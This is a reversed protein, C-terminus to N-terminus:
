SSPATRRGLSPPAPELPTPVTSLQFIRAPNASRARPSCITAWPPWPRCRPRGRRDGARRQRLRDARPWLAELCLGSRARATRPRTSTSGAPRPCTRRGSRARLRELQIPAGGALVAFIVDLDSHREADTPRALRLLGGADAGHLRPRLTWWPPAGAQPPEPPGPHVFLVGALRRRARRSARRAGGVVAEHRSAPAPSARWAPAPPSFARLRGDAAAVLERM